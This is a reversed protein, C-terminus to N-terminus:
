PAIPHLQLTNQLMCSMALPPRMGGREPSIQLQIREQHIEIVTPPCVFDDESESKKMESEFCPNQEQQGRPKGLMEQTTSVGQVVSSNGDTSHERLHVLTKLSNVFILKSM